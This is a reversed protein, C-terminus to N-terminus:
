SEAAADPVGDPSVAGIAVLAQVEIFAWRHKRAWSVAEGKFIRSFVAERMVLFYGSRCPDPMWGPGAGPPPRNWDPDSKSADIGIVIIGQKMHEACKPCPDMDVVAGHFASCDGLRRHFLIKDDEGCYFCKTLAVHKGERAAKPLM